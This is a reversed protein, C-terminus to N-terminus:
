STPSTVERKRYDAHDEASGDWRSLMKFYVFLMKKLLNELPRSTKRTGQEVILEIDRVYNNLLTFILPLANQM